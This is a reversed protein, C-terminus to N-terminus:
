PRSSRSHLRYGLGRVTELFCPTKYDLEVKRRLEWILHNIDAEIHPEDGWIAILLDEYSCMVPIDDNGRNRHDMYRILKHEQPRLPQIEERTEGTVRFLRAQVWDYELHAAKAKEEFGKNTAQPDHFTLEWYLPEQDESLRGLICVSENEHLLAQGHIAQLAGDRRLFTRNISGNDRVHWGEQDREVVCHVKRTVLQQPDPSLAVDNFQPYRGITIRDTTMEVRFQEGDPGTVDFYPFLADKESM